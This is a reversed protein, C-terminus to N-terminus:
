GSIIKQIAKSELDLNYGWLFCLPTQDHKRSGIWFPGKKGLFALFISFYYYYILKFKFLIIIILSAMKQPYSQM